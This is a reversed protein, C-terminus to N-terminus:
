PNRRKSSMSADVVIRCSSSLASRKSVMCDAIRDRSPLHQLCLRTVDGACAARQEAENPGALVAVTSTLIAVVALCSRTMSGRSVTHRHAM